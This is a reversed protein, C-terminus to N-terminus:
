YLDLLGKVTMCAGLTILIISWLSILGLPLLVLLLIIGLLMTITGALIGGNMSGLWGEEFVGLVNSSQEQGYQDWFVSKRRRGGKPKPHSIAPPDIDREPLLPPPLTAAASANPAPVPPPGAAIEDILWAPMPVQLTATCAPCTIWKGALEDRLTLFRGCSCTLELPM